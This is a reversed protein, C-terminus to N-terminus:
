ASASPTPAVAALRDIADSSEIDIVDCLKSLLEHGHEATPSAIDSKRYLAVCRNRTLIGAQFVSQIKMYSSTISEESALHARQMLADPADAGLGYSFHVPLQMGNVPCPVSFKHKFDPRQALGSARLVEVCQVDFKKRDGRPDRLTRTAVLEGFLFDTAKSVERGRLRQMVEGTDVLIFNGEQNSLLADVCTSNSTPVSKGRRPEISEGNTMESWFEVWRRYTDIEEVINAAKDESLFRACLKGKSWLIVGINRPEMRDLDPVYKALVFRSTVNDSAM